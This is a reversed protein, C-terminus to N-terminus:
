FKWKAGVWGDLNRFGMPEFSEKRYQGQFGASVTLEESVEHLLEIDGQIVDEHQGKRPDGPTETTWNNLEYHIALELEWYKKLAIDMESTVFHNIYSVDDQLLPENRGNALGVEYHYGVMLRVKESLDSWAHLGITRFDTNRQQFEQNYRRTGYRGYLRLLYGEFFQHSLGGAIFNTTVIENAFQEEEHEGPTRIENEGILLDPAFYYRVLFDTNETFKHFGDVGLTGHNFRANDIFIFGQGRAQLYSERGFLLLSKKIQLVPEFVADSGQEAVESDIVPQTPDQDKTLRRTASFLAADETGFIYGEGKIEWEACAPPVTHFGLLYGPGLLLLCFFGHQIRIAKLVFRMKLSMSPPFSFLIFGSGMDISIEKLSYRAAVTVVSEM